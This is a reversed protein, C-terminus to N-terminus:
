RQRTALNALWIVFGAIAASALTAIATVSPSTGGYAHSAMGGTYTIVVSWAISLIYGWRRRFLVGAGAALGLLGYLLSSITISHQLVTQADDTTWADIGNQIGLASIILLLTAALIWPV